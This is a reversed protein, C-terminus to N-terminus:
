GRTVMGRMDVIRELALIVYRPVPKLAAIYARIDAENVELVTAAAEVSLDARGLLACLCTADFPGSDGTDSQPM